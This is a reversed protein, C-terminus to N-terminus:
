YSNSGTSIGSRIDKVLKKASRSIHPKRLWAQALVFITTSESQGLQAALTKLQYQHDFNRCSSVAANFDDVPLHLMKAIWRAEEAASALLEDEPSTDGPLFLVPQEIAGPARPVHSQQDADLIGLVRLRSSHRLIRLGSRVESEGGVSIIEAERTLATDYRALLRGLLQKALKDEVLILARVPTEIGINDQIQVFSTPTIVRIGGNDPICMRINNLPFRTLIEPAHTAVVLQVRKIFAQRAVEDIFPRQARAALFAEPEDLLVLDEKAAENHLFWTLVYHVWLEGHSM